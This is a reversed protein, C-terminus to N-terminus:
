SIEKKRKMMREQFVPLVLAIRQKEEVLELLDSFTAEGRPLSVGIPPKTSSDNGICAWAQRTWDLQAKSPNERDEWGKFSTAM